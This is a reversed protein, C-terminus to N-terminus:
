RLAWLLGVLAAAQGEADLMPLQQRTAQCRAADRECAWVILETLSAFGVGNPGSWRGNPSRATVANPYSWAGNASRATVANPYNLAGLASRATVANPYSWAGNAARGTVGNSWNFRPELLGECALDRAQTLEALPAGSLGGIEAVAVVLRAEQCLASQMPASPGAGCLRAELLDLTRTDLQAARAYGQVSRVQACPDEEPTAASLQAGLLLLPVLPM